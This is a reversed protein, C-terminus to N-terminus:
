QTQFKVAGELVTYAEVTRTTGYQVAFHLIRRYVGLRIEVDTTTDGAYIIRVPVDGESTLYREEALTSDLVEFIANRTADDYSWIHVDIKADVSKIQSATEGTGGIRLWFELANYQEGEAAAEITIVEEAATATAVGQLDPHVNIAEAAETAMVDLPKETEAHYPVYVDGIKFLFNLGPAGAGALTVTGTAKTTPSGGQLQPASLTASVTVQPQSIEATRNIPVRHPKSGGNRIVSVHSRGAALHDRLESPEPWGAYAIASIGEQDLLYQIRTVFAAYISSLNAM